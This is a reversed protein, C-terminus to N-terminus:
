WMAQCSERNIQKQIFASSVRSNVLHFHTMLGSLPVVVWHRLVKNNSNSCSCVAADGFHQITQNMTEFQMEDNASIIIIAIDLSDNGMTSQCKTVTLNLTKFPHDQIAHACVFMKHRGDLIHPQGCTCITYHQLKCTSMKTVGDTNWSQQWLLGWCLKWVIIITQM